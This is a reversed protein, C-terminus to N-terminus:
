VLFPAKEVARVNVSTTGFSQHTLSSTSRCLAICPCWAADGDKSLIWNWQSHGRVSAEEIKVGTYMGKHHFPFYAYPIDAAWQLTVSDQPFTCTLDYLNHASSATIKMSVTESSLIVLLSNLSPYWTDIKKLIFLTLKDSQPFYCFLTMFIWAKLHFHSNPSVPTLIELSRHHSWPINFVSKNICQVIFDLM